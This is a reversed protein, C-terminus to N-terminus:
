AIPEPALDGAIEEKTDPVIEELIEPVSASDVSADEKAELVTEPIEGKEMLLIFEEADITEREMLNDALLVLKDMHEKLITETRKYCNDMWRKAEKDINYAIEESYNRDKSIDRGLFVQHDANNGFTLTGLEESMGYATIMSRITSTARELDNSAGTSIDDLVLAEAIRGGLLMCVQEFMQAKTVYNRDEEPLLLTYGGAAGRPIISVKHLPDTNPLYHSTVAHGAEHYAVLKKEKDSMIKSRKEPGAIIREISSELEEM